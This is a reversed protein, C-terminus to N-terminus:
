VEAHVGLVDLSCRSTESSECLYLYDSCACSPYLLFVSEEGKPASRSIFVELMFREPNETIRMPQNAVALAAESATDRAEQARAAEGAQEYMDALRAYGLWRLSAETGPDLTELNDEFLRHAEEMRGQSALLRAVELSLLFPQLPNQQRGDAHARLRETHSRWLAEFRPIRKDPDPEALWTVANDHWTHSLTYELTNVRGQAELVDCVVKWLVGMANLGAHRDTHYMSKAFGQFIVSYPHDPGLLLISSQGIYDVLLRIVEPARIAWSM